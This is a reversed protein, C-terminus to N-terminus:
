WCQQQKSRVKGDNDTSLGGGQVWVHESVTLSLIHMWTSVAIKHTCVWVVPALGPSPHADVAQVYVPWTPM